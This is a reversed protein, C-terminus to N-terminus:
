MVAKAIPQLVRARARNSTEFYRNSSRLWSSASMVGGHLLKMSIGLFSQLVRESAHIERATFRLVYDPRSNSSTISMESLTRNFAEHV